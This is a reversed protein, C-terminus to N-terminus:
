LSTSTIILSQPPHTSSSSSSPNICSPLPMMVSQGPAAKQTPLNQSSGKSDSRLIWFSSLSFICELNNHKFSDVIKLTSIRWSHNQSHRNVSVKGPVLFFQYFGLFLNESTKLCSISSLRPLSKASGTMMPPLTPELFSLGSNDREVTIPSKEAHANESATQELQHLTVSTVTTCHVFCM